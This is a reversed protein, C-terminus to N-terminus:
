GELFRYLTKRWIGYELATKRVGITGVSKRIAAENEHFIERATPEDKNRLGNARIIRDITSRNIGIEAAMQIITKGDALGQEILPLYQSRVPALRRAAWARKRHKPIEKRTAGSFAVYCVSPMLLEAISPYAPVCEYHHPPRMIQISEREGHSMDAGDCSRNGAGGIRRVM